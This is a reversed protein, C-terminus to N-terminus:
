KSEVRQECRRLSAFVLGAICGVIPGLLLFGTVTNLSNFLAQTAPTGIALGEYQKWPDSSEPTAVSFYAQALVTTSAILCSVMAAWTSCVVSFGLSHGSRSTRLGTTGWLLLPAALLGINLADLHSFDGTVVKNSSLVLGMLILGGLLGWGVGSSLSRRASAQRAGGIWVFLVIYGVLSIAPDIALAGNGPLNVVDQWPWLRVGLIAIGVIALLIL